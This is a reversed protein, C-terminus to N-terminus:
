YSFRFTVYRLFYHHYHYLNQPNFIPLLLIKLNSAFPVSFLKQPKWNKGVRTEKLVVFFTCVPGEVLSTSDFDKKSGSRTLGEVLIHWNFNLM